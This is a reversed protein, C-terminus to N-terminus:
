PRLEVLPQEPLRNRRIGRARQTRGGKDYLTTSEVNRPRKDLRSAHWKRTRELLGLQAELCKPEDPTGRLGQLHSIQAEIEALKDLHNM